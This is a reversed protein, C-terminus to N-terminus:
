AEAECAAVVEAFREPKVEPLKAAGFKGLLALAVPKGKRQILATVAKAAQEYTVAAPKADAAPTKTDTAKRGKPADAPADPATEAKPAPPPAGAGAKYLAILERVAATNEQIAVELM